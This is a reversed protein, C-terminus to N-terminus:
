CMHIVQSPCHMAMNQLLGKVVSKLTIDLALRGCRQSRCISGFLQDAINGVVNCAKLNGTM